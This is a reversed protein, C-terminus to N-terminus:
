FYYIAFESKLKGDALFTFPLNICQFIYIYPIFSLQRDKKSKETVEWAPLV